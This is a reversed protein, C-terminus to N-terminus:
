RHALDVPCSQAKSTRPLSQLRQPQHRSRSPRPRPNPHTLHSQKQSTSQQQAWHARTPRLPCQALPSSTRTTLESSGLKLSWPRILHISVDLPLADPTHEDSRRRPRLSLRPHISLTLTSLLILASASPSSSLLAPPPHLVHVGDTPPTTSPSAAALLLLLLLLLLHQVASTSHSLPGRRQQHTCRSICSSGLRRWRVCM